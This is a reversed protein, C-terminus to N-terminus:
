NGPTFVEFADGEDPLMLYLDPLVDGDADMASHPDTGSQFERLNNIKDGDPDGFAGNNPDISGDDRPDLDHEIEWDDDLGDHDTDQDLPNTDHLTVEAINSLSDGDYDDGEPDTTVVFAQQLRLFFKDSSSTFGRSKPGTGYEILPAYHWDKLDLSFQLFDTRGALGNWDANWSGSTGQTLSVENDAALPQNLILLLATTKALANM